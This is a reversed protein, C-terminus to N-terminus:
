WEVKLPMTALEEALYPRLAPAHGRWVLSVRMEDPAIVMSHIVPKTKKLTGKREYSSCAGKERRRM